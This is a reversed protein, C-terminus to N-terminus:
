LLNLFVEFVALLPELSRFNQLQNTKNFKRLSFPMEFINSWIKRSIGVFFWLM